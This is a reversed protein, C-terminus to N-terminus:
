WPIASLTVTSRAVELQDVRAAHGARDRRRDGVLEAVGVAAGDVSETSRAAAMKARANAAAM